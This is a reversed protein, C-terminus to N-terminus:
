KLKKTLFLKKFEKVIIFITFLFWCMYISIEIITYFNIYVQKLFTVIDSLVKGDMFIYLIKIIISYINYICNRIIENNVFLALLSNFLYYQNIKM